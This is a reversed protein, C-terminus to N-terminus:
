LTLKKIIGSFGAPAIGLRQGQEKRLEGFYMRLVVMPISLYALLVEWYSKIEFGAEYINVALAVGILVYPIALMWGMMLAIKPRTSQGDAKAQAEYVSGQAAVYARTTENAMRKLDVEKDAELKRIKVLADPNNKLEKEIAEPTNEVGLVTSIMAGAAGGLPGGIVTGLTPAVQGIINKINDWM